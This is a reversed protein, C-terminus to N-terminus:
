SFYLSKREFNVFTLLLGRQFVALQQQFFIVSWSLHWNMDLELLQQKVSLILPFSFLACLPYPHCLPLHLLLFAPHQAGCLAFRTLEAVNFDTGGHQQPFHCVSEKLTAGAPGVRAAVGQDSGGCEFLPFCHRTPPLFAVCRAELSCCAVPFLPRVCVCMSFM